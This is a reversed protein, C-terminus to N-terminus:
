KVAEVSVIGHVSCNGQVRVTGHDIDSTTYRPKRNKFRFDKIKVAESLPILRGLQCFPKIEHLGRVVWTNIDAISANTKDLGNSYRLVRGSADTEYKNGYATRIIYKVHHKM